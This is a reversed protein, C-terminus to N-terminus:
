ASGPTCDVIAKYIPAWHASVPFNHMSLAVSGFVGPIIAATQIPDVGPSAETSTASDTRHAVSPGYASAVTSIRYASAPQWPQLRTLSVGGLISPASMTQPAPDAGRIAGASSPDPLGAIGIALLIGKIRSATPVAKQRKM